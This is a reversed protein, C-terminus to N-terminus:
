KKLGKWRRYYLYVFVAVAAVQLLTKFFEALNM